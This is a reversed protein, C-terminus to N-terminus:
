GAGRPARSFKRTGCRGHRLKNGRRAGSRGIREVENAQTQNVRAEFIEPDIRAVLQGKKVKTNFDVYLASINGSVQAGVEVTVVANLNGTASITSTIAGRDVRVPHPGQSRALAAQTRQVRWALRDELHRRDPVHLVSSGPAYSRDCWGKTSTTSFACCLNRLPAYVCPQLRTITRGDRAAQPPNRDM